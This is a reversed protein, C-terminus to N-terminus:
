DGTFSFGLLSRRQAKDVASKAENIKLKLKQEVFKRVSEMVRQGSRESKVYINCDDAYRVFRHGRKELDKDLRDLVINALLPSLPGGQPTGEETCVCCGDIMIGAKLFGRLIKLMRKDKIKKSLTYMLSDHNVKDFFKELDIDVVIRYGGNIYEQAQKIAQHASRGPRFGYSHESFDPDFIPTLVQLIAQQILRDLVTPVGLNREGGEEKPIVVRRVPRSKYNGALLERKHAEWNDILYSRLEEVKMGDIGPAGKNSEVRKLAELMNEREVVLEMLYEEAECSLQSNEAPVSSQVGQIRGTNVRKGELFDEQQPKRSEKSKRSDM